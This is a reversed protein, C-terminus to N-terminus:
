SVHTQIRPTKPRVRKRPKAIPPLTKPIRTKPIRTTPTTRRPLTTTKTRRKTRHKRRFWDCKPPTTSARPRPQTKAKPTPNPRTGKEDDDDPEPPKPAKAVWANSMADKVALRDVVGVGGRLVVLRPTATQANVPLRQYRKSVFECLEDLSLEQNEDVDATHDDFASLLSETSIPLESQFNWGVNQLPGRTLLVWVRDPAPCALESVTKALSQIADDNWQDLTPHASLPEVDLVILRTGEFKDPMTQTLRTLIESIPLLGRDPEAQPRTSLDSCALAAEGKSNELLYGRLVLMVTDDRDDLTKSVDKSKLELRISESDESLVKAGLQERLRQRATASFMPPTIVDLDYSSSVVFTFLQPRRRPRLIWVVFFLILLAAIATLVVKTVKRKDADGAGSRRWSQREGYKSSVSM